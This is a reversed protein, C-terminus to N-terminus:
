SPDQFGFGRRARVCMLDIAIRLGHGAEPTRVLRRRHNILLCRLLVVLHTEGAVRRTALDTRPHHHGRPKGGPIQV